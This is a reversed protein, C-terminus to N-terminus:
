EESEVGDRKLDPKTTMRPAGLAPLDVKNFRIRPCFIEIVELFGCVVRFRM